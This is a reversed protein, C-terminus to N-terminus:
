LVVTYLNFFFIIILVYFPLYIYKEKSIYNITRPFCFRYLVDAISPVFANNGNNDNINKQM